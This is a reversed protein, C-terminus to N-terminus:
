QAVTQPASIQLRENQVRRSVSVVKTTDSTSIFNVAKNDLWGLAILNNDCNVACVSHGRPYQKVDKTTFLVSKPLLKRNPRITGRCFVTNQRLKIATTTSMYYNDMNVTAGSGYLPRCMDLTLKDTKTYQDEEDELHGEIEESGDKTHIRIKHVINTLACCLMYIKFHFKGTTKKPNFSILGRGYRSFCAMTAGDFSFESGPTAYRSITRKVIELLPRVKHLSDEQMGDHDENNNFHLMSTIQLMRWKTM